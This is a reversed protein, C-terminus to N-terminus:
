FKYASPSYSGSTKKRGNRGRPRILLRQTIVRRKQIRLDELCARPSTSKKRTTQDYDALIDDTVSLLAEALYCIGCFTIAFPDDDSPETVTTVVEAATPRSKRDLCLVMQSIMLM